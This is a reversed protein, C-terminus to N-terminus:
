NSDFVLTFSIATVPTISSLGALEQLKKLGASFQFDDAHVAIPKASTIIVQGKQASSAIFLVDYTASIGHLDVTVETQLTNRTGTTIKGILENDLQTTITAVPWKEIEFLYQGMRSNRIPIGTEIDGPAFTITIKGTNSVIGGQLGITFVEGVDEAKVAFLSIQSDETVLSWSKTNTSQQDVQCGVLFLMAVLLTTIATSSINFIRKM